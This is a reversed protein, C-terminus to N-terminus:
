EVSLTLINIWSNRMKDKLQYRAPLNISYENELLRRRRGKGLKRSLAGHGQERTGAM